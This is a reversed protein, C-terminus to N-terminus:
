STGDIARMSQCYQGACLPKHGPEGRRPKAHEAMMRIDDLKGLVVHMPQQILLHKYAEMNQSLYDSLSVNSAEQSSACTLQKCLVPLQWIIFDKRM